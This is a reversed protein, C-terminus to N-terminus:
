QSLASEDQKLELIPLQGRTSQMLLMTETLLLRDQKQNMLYLQYNLESLLIVMEKQVTATSATNIKDVWQSGAEKSPDYLRKTAMEYQSLAQSTPTDSSSTSSSETSSSSGSGSSKQPMRNSLLYYLNSIPVSSAAAYSRLDALYSAIAEQAKIKDKLKATDTGDYISQQYLSDYNALTAGSASPSTQKSAYRIFNVANQAQNIATLGDDKSSSQGSDSSGESTNTSSASTTTYILPALLTNSNLQTVIPKNYDFTFFDYTKPLTGITNTAVKKDYLTKCDTIYTSADSSMCFTYNPTTLIDLVAQNTPDNQYTEQDILESVSVLGSTGTETTNYPSQGDGQSQFTYNAASNLVAYTKNDDPVFLKLTDDLANANVPFAGLLTTYAYQQALLTADIDLLSENPTVAKGTDDEKAKTVDFGFYTGLNKIYDDTMDDASYATTNMLLFFLLLYNKKMM